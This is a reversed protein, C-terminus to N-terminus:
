EHMHDAKENHNCYRFGSLVKVIETNCSSYDDAPHLEENGVSVRRLVPCSQILSNIGNSTVNCGRLCIQDLSGFTPQLEPKNCHTNNKSENFYLDNDNVHTWCVYLETLHIGTM